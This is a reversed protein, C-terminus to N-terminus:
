LTECHSAVSWHNEGHVGTEEMLLVSQWSIISIYNFTANFMMVMYSDHTDNLDHYHNVSQSVILRVLIKSTNIILNECSSWIDSANCLWWNHTRIANMRPATSAVIHSLTECHSAVSWHNGGHVGTEEVLLASQWSIISINNFTANFIMIRVWVACIFLRPLADNHLAESIQDEQSFRMIFIYTLEVVM